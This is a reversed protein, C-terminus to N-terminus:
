SHWFFKYNMMNSIKLACSGCCLLHSSRAHTETTMPGWPFIIILKWAVLFGLSNEVNLYSSEKVGSWWKNRWDSMEVIYSPGAYYALSTTTFQTIEYPRLCQLVIQIQHNLAYKGWASETISCIEEVCYQYPKCRVLRWYVSSPILASVNILVTRTKLVFGQSFQKMSCDAAVGWM